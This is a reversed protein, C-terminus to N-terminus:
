RLFTKNDIENLKLIQLAEFLLDSGKRPDRTGGIAGFLILPVELPLNLFKRAQSKNIPVFKDLDIPIPIIDVPWNRMLSSEKACKALWESCCVINFPNKLM